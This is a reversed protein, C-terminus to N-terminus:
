LTLNTETLFEWLNTIWCPTVICKYLNYNHTLVAPGLGSEQTLRQWSEYILEQTLKNYPNFILQLKRIGQTIFPDHLGFGQYKNPAYIINRSVKRCIGAKALGINLAPSIIRKLETRTLCTAPLAYEV